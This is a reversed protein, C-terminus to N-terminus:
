LNNDSDAPPPLLCAPLHLTLSSSSTLTELHLLGSYHLFLFAPQPDPYLEKGCDAPPPPKCAPPLPLYTSAAQQSTASAPLHLTLTCNSALTQLHFCDSPKVLQRCAAEVQLSHCSAKVSGGCDASPPPRFGCEAHPPPRSAPPLPQYTTFLACSSAVTQLHLHGAPQHCLCTLPPDTLAAQWLCYTSSRAEGAQWLRYTSTSKPSSASAPLHITMRFSSDVTHLHIHVSPQHFLRVLATDPYLQKGCPQFAVKVLQRCAAEVQLGQCSAKVSGRCDAPPPPRFGCEACPLPRSASAPLHLSLTCSSALTQLHLSDSPLVAPQQCLLTPPPDPQLQKGSDKPPPPRFAPHDTLAAQWLRCTSTAQLNTASASLHPPLPCSSALTQLHLRAAPQHCLKTPPPDTLAEQGPRCSSSSQLCLQSWPAAGNAAGHPAGEDNAKMLDADAHVVSRPLPQSLLLHSIDAPSLFRPSYLKNGPPTTALLCTINRIHWIHQPCKTSSLNIDDLSFGGKSPSKGRVGEFVVRVKQAKNVLNINHLEWSDMVGGSISKYIKMIGSPKDKNYERVWINLVDDAAGTNYLFFQLCQAGPKPYLWRSELLARDGPEASATSFHMFYGKGKCQGMNSFDTHPGGGVSSHQDWKRNGGPGQIMGCINEQEFNCSDVFTSSKTCNYLLNLKTLDSASFGIRQGIVDMFHPIKTVIIPEFGISFSMKNYHMVSGYNYPVGLASSDDHKKFSGTEDPEIRDWMISVYDDRDARSQEHWFGLAHLFEHEVIGLRDCNEGISLQQKGVHRNGVRSNCGSGKYVSIYNKEGKWPTFDLCTKLRFQDFAKLIVGKANMDENIDFIDWDHGEDVDTDASTSDIIHLGLSFFAIIWRLAM